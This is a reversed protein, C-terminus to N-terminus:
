WLNCCSHTNDRLPRPWLFHPPLTLKCVVDSLDIYRDKHANHSFQSIKIEVRTKWVDCDCDILVCRINLGYTYLIKLWHFWSYFTEAQIQNWKWQCKGVVTLLASASDEDLTTNVICTYLGADDETVDTITLSDSNVRFRFVFVCFHSIHSFDANM